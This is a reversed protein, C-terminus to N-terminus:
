TRATETAHVLKLMDSSPRTQLQRFVAVCITNRCLLILGVKAGKLVHSKAARNYSAMTCLLLNLAKSTDAYFIIRTRTTDSYKLIVETYSARLFPTLLGNM